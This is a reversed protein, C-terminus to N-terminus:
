NENYEDAMEGTTVFAYYKNQLQDVIKCYIRTMELIIM